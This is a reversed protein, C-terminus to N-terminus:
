INYLQYVYRHPLLCSFLQARNHEHIGSQCLGMATSSSTYAWHKTRGVQTISYLNNPKAIYM